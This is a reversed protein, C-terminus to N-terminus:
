NCGGRQYPKWRYLIKDPLILSLVWRRAAGYSHKTYLFGTIKRFAIYAKKQYIQKDSLVPLGRIPRDDASNPSPRKLQEIQVLRSPSHKTNPEM